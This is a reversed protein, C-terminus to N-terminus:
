RGRGVQGGGGEGAQATADGRGVNPVALKTGAVSFDAEPNLKEILAPSAHFQEGLKEEVSAYPLAKLKAMEMPATPTEAFPGAVDEATLTYEVLIPATDRNLAEWTAADLQGSAPLGNAQQFAATARKRTAAARM